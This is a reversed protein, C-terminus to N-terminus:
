RINKSIEESLMLLLLLRSSLHKKIANVANELHTKVTEKGIGLKDAIQQYTLREHRHLKYIEKQRASLLEIAEDILNLHLHQPNSEADGTTAQKQLREWDELLKIERMTKRFANLAENRSITFLYSKFNSIHPLKQRHQWVKLFVDHTIEATQERSKIISYIYSSFLPQWYNFLQEFAREDGEAIKLLLVHENDTISQEM